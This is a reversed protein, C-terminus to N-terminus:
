LPRDFAPVQNMPRRCVSRSRSRTMSPSNDACAPLPKSRPSSPFSIAPMAGRTNRIRLTLSSAGTSNRVRQASEHSRPGSVSGSIVRRMAPRLAASGVLAAGGADVAAFGDARGASGAPTSSIKRAAFGPM